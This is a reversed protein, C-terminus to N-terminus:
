GCIGKLAVWDQDDLTLPAPPQPLTDSTAPHLATRTARAIVAESLAGTLIYRLAAVPGASHMLNAVPRNVARARQIIRAIEAASAARALAARDLVLSPGPLLVTSTEGLAMVRLALGPATAAGLRTLARQGNPEACPPGKIEILSLLMRDGFEVAQAPPVMRAAQDRLLDPGYTIAALILAAILVPLLVPRRPPPPPLPAPPTLDRAIAAIADIMEPDRISLTEAADLTMAFITADGERGAIQIGPLAWHGLPRDATDTILLTANGFSVVVERTPQDASERWLGTSELREYKELATM